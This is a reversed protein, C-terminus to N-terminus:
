KKIFDVTGRRCNNDFVFKIFPSVQRLDEDILWIWFAGNCAKGDCVLTVKFRGEEDSIAPYESIPEGGPGSSAQVLLGPLPNGNETIRGIVSSEQDDGAACKAVGAPGFTDALPRPTGVVTRTPAPRTARLTASARTEQTPSALRGGILDATRCAMLLLALAGVVGVYRAVRGNDKTM